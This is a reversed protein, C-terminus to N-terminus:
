AINKHDYTSYLAAVSHITTSQAHSEIVFGAVDKSAEKVQSIARGLMPSLADAHIFSFSPRVVSQNTTIRFSFDRAGPMSSFIPYSTEVLRFLSGPTLRSELVSDPVQVDTTVDTGHNLSELAFYNEVAELEVELSISEERSDHLLYSLLGSLKLIITPSQLSQNTLNQHLNSLASMLFSPRIRSRELQLESLMKRRALEKIERQQVFWKKIVRFGLLLGGVLFGITANQIGMSLVRPKFFSSPEEGLAFTFYLSATYINISIPIIGIFIAIALASVYQQRQLFPTVFVLFLYSTLVISPLFCLFNVWSAYFM